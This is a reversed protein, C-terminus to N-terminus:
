DLGNQLTGMSAYVLPRGDLREWPFITKNRTESRHPPGVFHFNAPLTKRPFEFSRPEQCIQPGGLFRENLVRPLGQTGM